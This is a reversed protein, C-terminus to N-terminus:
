STLEASRAHTTSVQNEDDPRVLDLERCVELVIDPDITPRRLAFGAVLVNDCIVSITRPIGGSHRFIEEIAETTFVSANTGGAVRLRTIVYAATDDLDLPALTARLAVRQKLQRLSPHNLRDALEPQGSLLVPLLTESATEVNALLRVEELLELPLCQAEDIILTTLRGAARRETLRQQLELLFRSKSSRADQRLGFGAALLEMFEDRTLIPNNLYVAISDDTRSQKMATHILTTKGTGAEGVLLTLGKRAVGYQLVSLAERHQRTLLLYRPDPTLEFPPAQLGYFREYM